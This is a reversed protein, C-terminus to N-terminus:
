SLGPPVQVKTPIDQILSLLYTAARGGRSEAWGTLPPAPPCATRHAQTPLLTPCPPFLQLVVYEGILRTILLDFALGCTPTPFIIEPDAFVFLGLFNLYKRNFDVNERRHLQERLFYQSSTWPIDGFGLGYCARCTSYLQRPQDRCRLFILSM